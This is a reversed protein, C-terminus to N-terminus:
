GAREARRRRALTLLIKGTVLVFLGVVVVGLNDKIWPVQGLLGGALTFAGVWCLVGLAGALLFAAMPMRGMGAVFPLFSRVFPVFPSVYLSTRGHREMFTETKALSERSVLGRERREFVWRGLWQGQGYNALNGLVAGAAGALVLFIPSLTQSPGATLMGATFLLTNGPLIPGFLLGTQTFALLAVLGYVAAPNEGALATLWPGIRNLADM